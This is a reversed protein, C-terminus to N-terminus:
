IMTVNQVNSRHMSKNWSKGCNRYKPFRMKENEWKAKMENFQDRMQSLEQQVDKLHAQSLKDDEKKLAAEEIEHQMIKRRIEDLETPMSDMETRIM